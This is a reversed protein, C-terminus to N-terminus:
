KSMKDLMAQAALMHGQFAPAVKAVMAKVEANQIAPMLTTNVADIVAKHFAVEHQLFARDFAVGSLGNLKKM